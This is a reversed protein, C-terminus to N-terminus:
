KNNIEEIGDINDIIHTEFEPESKYFKYRLKSYSKFYDKVEIDDDENIDIGENLFDMDDNMNLLDGEKRKGDFTNYDMFDFIIPKKGEAMRLARGTQQVVDNASKSNRINGLIDLGPIDCGEGFLTSLVINFEKTDLKILAEEKDDASDEGIVTKITLNLDNMNELMKYILKLHEIRTFSLLVSKGIKAFKYAIEAIMKNKNEDKMLHKYASKYTMPKDLYYPSKIMYIKPKALYGEKILDSIGKHYIIPGIHAELMDEYGDERAPTASLGVRYISNSCKKLIMGLENLSAHHIEDGILMRAGKLVEEHKLTVKKNKDMVYLSQFTAITIRNNPNYLKNDGSIINIEENKLNLCSKFGRALQRLLTVRNVIILTKLNIDATIKYAVVSKGSGTAMHLIGRKKKKFIDVAEKQYYRLEMGNLKVDKIEINNGNYVKDVKYEYGMEQLYKIIKPILGSYTLIFSKKDMCLNVYGDWQRYPETLITGKPIIDGNSKKYDEEIPTYADLIINRYRKSFFYGNPHFRFKNLIDKRIQEINIDNNINNSVFIKSWVVDVIIKIM